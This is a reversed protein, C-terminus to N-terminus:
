NHGSRGFNKRLIMFDALSVQNDRNLDAKPNWNSSSSTSGMAARMLMFDSVNVTNDGNADGNMLDFTLNVNGSSTFQVSGIRQKLWSGGAISVDYTGPSIPAEIAFGGNSAPRLSASALVNSSGRSCVQATLTVTSPSGSIDQLRVLGGLEMREALAWSSYSHAVVQKCNELSMAIPVLSHTATTNIGLNSASGTTYVTGSATLAVSHESGGAIDVINNVGAFARVPTTRYYDDVGTGLIGEWNAGWGWATGNQRIALSHQSGGAIKVVGTLGVVQSPTNNFEGQYDPYAIAAHGNGIQGFLNRGWAFVVGDSRLALSHEGGAAVAVINSLGPVVTPYQVWLGIGGSEGYQNTGWALVKGDNRLALAHNWCASVQVIGSLRPVVLPTLALSVGDMDFLGWQYVTGDQGLALKIHRGGSVQVINHLGPVEIPTPTASYSGDGPMEGWAWVRGSTTAVVRSSISSVNAPTLCLVPVQQDGNVGNGVNGWGWGYTRRIVSASADFSTSAFLVLACAIGRWCARLHGGPCGLSRQTEM